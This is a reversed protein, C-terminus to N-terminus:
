VGLWIPSKKKNVRDRYYKDICFWLDGTMHQTIFSINLKNTVSTEPKFKEIYSDSNVVDLLAKSWPYPDFSEIDARHETNKSVYALLVKHQNIENKGFSEIVESVDRNILLSVEKEMRRENYKDSM